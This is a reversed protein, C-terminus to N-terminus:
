KKQAKLKKMIDKLHQNAKTKQGYKANKVDKEANKLQQELKKLKTSGPKLRLGKRKEKKEFNELDNKLKELEKKTFKIGYRKNKQGVSSKKTKEAKKAKLLKELQKISVSKRNSKNKNMTKNAKKQAKEKARQEKEKRTLGFNSQPIVDSLTPGNVNMSFTNHGQRLLSNWAPPKTIPQGGDWLSLYGSQNIKQGFSNSPNSSAAGPNGAVIWPQPPGFPAILNPQHRAGVRFKSVPKMGPPVELKGFNPGSTGFVLKSFAGYALHNSGFNSM